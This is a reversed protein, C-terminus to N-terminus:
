EVVIWAITSSCVEILEATHRCFVNHGELTRWWVFCKHSCLTATMSSEFNLDGGVGTARDPDAFVSSLLRPAVLLVGGGCACVVICKVCVSLLLCHLAASLNVIVRSEDVERFSWRM